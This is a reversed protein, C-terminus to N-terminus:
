QEWLCQAQKLTAALDEVGEPGDLDQVIDLFLCLAEKSGRM